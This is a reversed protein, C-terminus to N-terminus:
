LSKFLVDTEETEEGPKSGGNQSYNGHGLFSAGEREEDMGFVELCITSTRPSLLGM